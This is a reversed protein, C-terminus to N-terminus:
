GSQSQRCSRVSNGVGTNGQLAEGAKGGALLRRCDPCGLGAEMAASSGNLVVYKAVMLKMRARSCRKCGGDIIQEKDPVRPWWLCLM